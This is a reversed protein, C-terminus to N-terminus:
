VQGPPAEVLLAEGAPGVSANGLRSGSVREEGAPLRARGLDRGTWTPLCGDRQLSVASWAFLGEPHEPRSRPTSFACRVRNCSDWSLAWFVGCSLGHGRLLLAAESPFVQHFLTERSLLVCVFQTEWSLTWNGVTEERILDSGLFPSLVGM